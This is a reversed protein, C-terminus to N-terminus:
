QKITLFKEVYATWNLNMKVFDQGASAISNYLNEDDMLAQVKAAIEEPHAPRVFLANVGDKMVEAVSTIDAVIVPLGAAMAEMAAMGWIKIRNPFIFAFTKKQLEFLEPDNVGDFYFTAWSGDGDQKVIDLLEKKLADSKWFDKCVLSVRCDIGKKRLILAANLIDEYSRARSLSGVGLLIPSKKKGAWGTVPRYFKEFNVPISILEAEAGIEHCLMRQEEDHVVIKDVYPLFKKVRVRELQGAIASLIDTIPNDKKTHRFPANNMVWIFKAKPNLERYFKSLKYTQDNEMVVMDFDKEMAEAIKQTAATNLRERVRREGIKRWASLNFSATGLPSPIERVELDKHLDPFCDPDYKATYVVVKHGAKQINGALLYMMRPDGSEVSLNLHTVAVKM